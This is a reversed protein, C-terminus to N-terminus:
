ARNKPIPIWIEVRGFGTQPDFDKGYVELEPADDVNLGLEPIWRNFINDWTNRITSIHDNHEFIAYDHEPIRLRTLEAPVDDFSSVEVGAIYEINGAEDSNAIAGYTTMGVQNPIHGIFPVFRQWQLPIRQCTEYTYRESLGAILLTGRRELRPQQLQVTMTRDRRIAEVLEIGELCRQARVAEPTAGFQDRFARTFAEHSGYGWDLAVSLIDPAGDCLSRAAESLRRGRVYRMISHGTSQGFARSLYFRSVGSVQAIEELSLEQAFHSEIYWLAKAVPDLRNEAPM